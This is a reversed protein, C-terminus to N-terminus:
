KLIQWYLNGIYVKNRYPRATWVIVIFELWTWETNIWTSVLFLFQAWQSFFIWIYGWWIIIRTVWLLIWTRHGDRDNGRFFNSNLQSYRRIANLLSSKIGNNRQIIVWIWSRGDTFRVRYIYNPIRFAFLLFDSFVYMRKFTNMFYPKVHSIYQWYSCMSDFSAINVMSSHAAHHQHVWASVACVTCFDIYLCLDM